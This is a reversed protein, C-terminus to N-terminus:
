MRYMCINCEGGSTLYAVSADIIEYVPLYTDFDLKCQSLIEYLYEGGKKLEKERSLEIAM